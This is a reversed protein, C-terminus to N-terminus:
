ETSDDHKAGSTQEEVLSKIDHSEKQIIPVHEDGLGEEENEDDINDSFDPINKYVRKSKTTTSTYASKVSNYLMHRFTNFCYAAKNILSSYNFEFLVTENECYYISYWWKKPIFLIYDSLVDFELFKVCDEIDESEAKDWVNYPSRFDLKEYDYIPDLRDRYKWPAMKVRIRGSTVYIFKRTSTHFRLPVSTGKGGTLVDYETHFTYPPQLIRDMEMFLIKRMIGAEEIFSANNESFYHTANKTEYFLLKVVGSSLLSFSEPSAITQNFFDRTDKVQMAYKSRELIKLLSLNRTSNVQSLIAHCQFIIPQHIDCTDQLTQPDTYDMEYIELDNGTKYQHIINLYLVAVIVFILITYLFDMYRFRQNYCLANDM